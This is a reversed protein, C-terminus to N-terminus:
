RLCLVWIIILNFFYPVIDEFAIGVIRNQKRFLMLADNSKELVNKTNTKSESDKKSVRCYENKITDWREVIGVHLIKRVKIINFIRPIRPNQSTIRWNPNITGM